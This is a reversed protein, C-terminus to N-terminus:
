DAPAALSESHISGARAAWNVRAKVPWLAEAYRRLASQQRRLAREARAPLTASGPKGSARGADTSTNGAVLAVTASAAVTALISKVLDLELLRATIDICRLRGVVMPGLLALMATMMFFAEM